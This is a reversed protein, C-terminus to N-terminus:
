SNRIDSLKKFLEIEDSNLKTPLKINLIVFLDGFRKPSKYIPMGMGKLKLKKGQQSEPPINVNLFGKLTKIKLEGGLIAIYLPVDVTTELNNEIRKFKKDEKVIITIILDGNPGGDLSKHGKLSLKMTQNDSIGSKINIEITDNNVKLRKKIGKYADQLSISIDTKHDKGKEPEKQTGTFPNNKYTSGFIKEFFDSMNGGTNFFDGVTKSKKTNRQQNAWNSWDFDNSSGGNQKFRNYSSGLNDYKSRKNKDKLVEYAENVEKFKEESVKNGANKDPHHERALNRFASKIEDESATKNVGLIKYYDKYTM